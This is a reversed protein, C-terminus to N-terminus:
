VAVEESEEPIQPMYRFFLTNSLTNELSIPDRPANTHLLRNHRIQKGLHKIIRTHRMHRLVGDCTM